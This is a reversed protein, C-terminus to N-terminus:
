QERGHDEQASSSLHALVDKVKYNDQPFHTLAGGKRHDRIPLLCHEMWDDTGFYTDLIRTSHHPVGVTIGLFEDQKLPFFDAQEYRVDEPPLLVFGDGDVEHEWIGLWPFRLREKGPIRMSDDRFIRCGMRQGGRIDPEVVYGMRVLVPVCQQLFADYDFVVIDIDDDWPIFDDHRLKGLLTGFMICARVQRENTLAFFDRLHELVLTREAFFGVSKFLDLNTKM